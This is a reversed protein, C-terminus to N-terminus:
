KLLARLAAIQALVAARATGGIVRRQEVSREAHWIEACEATFLPSIAQLEALPVASLSCGLEEARRVVQGVLHHSQRFPVGHRVLWDALDTALLEDGLAAAMRDPHITLTELMGRAIPLALSLTDVADFLPEKDEQLDKDYSTPLGKLTVLLGTLDGILRGAKGRLLEAADPNKKQPMLSSGTSYADALTIFGFERSSWFVLDEAWQSLHVGLLAAWFLFEAIFDRDAVADLSNPSAAAFGLEAALAARDVPLPCGALAGAGLPSINLRKCLDALRERDRQWAWARSLLWHSWRIPQAPQVHTYGPMLVDIEAAARDCAAAILAGLAAELEAARGRLWLRVDTAVQDNRSRGTHLKGAVPGIRETLKREVFSHIDEDAAGAFAAAPDAAIETRLAELGAVLADREAATLVGARHIANAWAISGTIDADWLRWDFPLSANFRVMLPDNAGTFRGGWLPSM